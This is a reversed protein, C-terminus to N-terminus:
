RCRKRCGHHGGKWKPCSKMWRQMKEVPPAITHPEPGAPENGEWCPHRIGTDRFMDRMWRCRKACLERYPVILERQEPPAQQELGALVQNQYASLFGMKALLVGRRDDPLKVSEELAREAEVLMDRLLDTDVGEGRYYKRLAEKLREESFVVRLEVRDSPNLTLYFKAKETLLKVPYLLDGPVATASVNVTGWGAFLVVFLVAAARLLASRSLWGFISARARSVQDEALHAMTRMLGRVSVQPSPLSELQKVLSLLPRLEEARDPYASLVDEMDKGSRLQEICDDLIQELDKEM